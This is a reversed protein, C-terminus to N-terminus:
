RHNSRLFIPEAVSMRTNLEITLFLGHCFYISLFVAAFLFVTRVFSIVAKRM